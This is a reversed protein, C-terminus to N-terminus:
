AAPGAAAAAVPECARLELRQLQAVMRGPVLRSVSLVPARGHQMRLNVELVGDLDQLGLAHCIAVNLAAGERLV